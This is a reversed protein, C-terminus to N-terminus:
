MCMFSQNLRVLFDVANCKFLTVEGVELYTPILALMCALGMFILLPPQTQAFCVHHQYRVIFVVCVFCLAQLQM